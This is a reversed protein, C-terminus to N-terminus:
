GDIGSYTVKFRSADPALPLTPSRYTEISLAAEACALTLWYLKREQEPLRGLDCEDLHKLAPELLPLATAYYTQIDTMTSHMRKHLREASTALAWEEVYPELAAFGAPLVGADDM